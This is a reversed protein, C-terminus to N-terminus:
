RGWLSDDNLLGQLEEEYQDVYEQMGQVRKERRKNIKALESQYYRGDPSYGDQLIRELRADEEARDEAELQQARQKYRERNDRANIARALADMGEIDGAHGTKRDRAMQDTREEGYVPHFAKDAGDGFELDDMRLLGIADAGDLYQNLEGTVNRAIQGDFLSFHGNGKAVLMMSHGSLRKGTGVQNQICINARAGPPYSLIEDIAEQKARVKDFTYTGDEHDWGYSYFHTAEEGGEFFEGIKRTDWGLTGNAAVKYGRMRAEMATTCLVCNRQYEPGSDYDPNVDWLMTDYVQHGGADTYIVEDSIPYADDLAGRTVSTGGGSKSYRARGDERGFIHQYWHMGKRGYHELKNPGSWTGFYHTPQYGWKEYIYGM